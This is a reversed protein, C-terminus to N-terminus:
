EARTGCEPCFRAGGLPAGCNSCFTSSAPAPGPAPAPPAAGPAAQSAPGRQEAIAAEARRRIEEMEREREQIQADIGTVAECQQALSEQDFTGSKYMTFVAEGIESFVRKKQNELEGIKGRVQQSEIAERSRISAEAAKETIGSKLKDFFSAM